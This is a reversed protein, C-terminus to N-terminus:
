KSPDHKKTWKKLWRRLMRKRSQPELFFEWRDHARVKREYRSAYASDSQMRREHARVNEWLQGTEEATGGNQARERKLLDNIIEVDIYDFLAKM